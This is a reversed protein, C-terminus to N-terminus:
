STATRRQAETEEETLMPAIILIEVYRYARSFISQGRCVGLLHQNTHNLFFFLYGIDNTILSICILVVSLYWDVGM